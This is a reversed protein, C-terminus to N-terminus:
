EVEEVDGEDLRSMCPWGKPKDLFKVGDPRDATRRACNVCESALVRSGHFTGTRGECRLYYAPLNV